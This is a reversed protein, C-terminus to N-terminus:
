SMPREFRNMLKFLALLALFVVLALVERNGEAAIVRPTAAVFGVFFGSIVVCLGIPGATRPLFRGALMFLTLGIAITVGALILLQVPPASDFPAPPEEGEVFARHLNLPDVPKGEDRVAVDELKALVDFGDVVRGFITYKGDRLPADGFLIAFVSGGSDLDKADRSMSLVGRVHRLKSLEAPLRVRGLDAQHPTFTHLRDVYGAHQILFGKLVWQFRTGDYYGARVLRLFHAVHRPAVQPYLVVRLEGKSTSLVVKSEHVVPDQPAAFLLAAVALIKM